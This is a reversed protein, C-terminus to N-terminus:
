SLARSVMDRVDPSLANQAALGRLAAAAFRRRGPEFLRWSKFAGLLRAATQSNSRDLDLVIDCLFRYGSGDAANFQTQNNMSFVGILSRLRNPNLLSFDAHTMLHQVRALAGPEAILAQVAFWKDVVLANTQFTTHFEALAAERAEGPLHSLISLAAMRDTMNTATRFAQLARTQGAAPDAAALLDLLSNARARRGASAADPSFTAPHEMAGLAAELDSRLATGVAARLRHRAALVAEPDIDSGIDRAVDAETPFALVQAAFAPEILRSRVIGGIAEIFAARSTDDPSGARMLRTAFTQSAQWRNFPDEDHAMLTLCDDDSQQM